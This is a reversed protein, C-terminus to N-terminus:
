LVAWLSEDVAEVADGVVAYAAPLAPRAVHIHHYVQQLGLRQCTNSYVAEVIHAAPYEEGGLYVHANRVVAFVVGVPCRQLVGFEWGNAVTLFFAHLM